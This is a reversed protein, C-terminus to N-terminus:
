EHAQDSEQEAAWRACLWTVYDALAERWPRLPKLGLARLREGALVAHRPRRTPSPWEEARIGTLEVGSLGAAALAAAALELRSCAGTNTLHVIGTATTELLRWLGEALDPTYTPCGWEDEVVRLPKGARAAELIAWVFNRGGPGYLWQTRVILPGPVATAAREGALKSAGYPNLPAPAASETYPRSRAGDFVYDTSIYLLRARLERAVAAVNRTAVVNSRWAKEPDRTAEDVNTFAACHVIVEPAARLLCARAEASVSLDGEARTLPVVTAWSPATRVVDQGLMGAAGTVAVTIPGAIRM